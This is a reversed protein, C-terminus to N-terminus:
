ASARGGPTSLPTAVERPKEAMAIVIMASSGPLVEVSPFIRHLEALVDEGTAGALARYVRHLVRVLLRAGKDPVIRIDFVFLRGGPRLAAFTNGVAARVDPMASLSSIAVAAGFENHGLPDRAADGAVVEVNGWGNVDILRRARRRMKPSNDVGVVRGTPGVAERLGSFISGVGCGVDLVTEGPKLKLQEFAISRVPDTPREFVGRPAAAM